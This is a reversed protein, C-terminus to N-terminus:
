LATDELSWTINGSFQKGEDGATNNVKTLKIGNMKVAFKGEVSGGAKAGFVDTAAGGQALDLTSAASVAETTVAGMNTNNPANTSNYSHVSALQIQVEAGPLQYSSSDEINSLAATVKWVNSTVAREENVVLYLDQTGLKPYSKTQGAELTHAKGFDFTEPTWELALPGTKPPNYDGSKFGFEVKTEDSDVQAASASMGGVLLGGLMSTTVLSTVLKKKNM